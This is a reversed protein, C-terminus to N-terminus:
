AGSPEDRSETIRIKCIDDTVDAINKLTEVSTGTRLQVDFLLTVASNEVPYCLLATMRPCARLYEARYFFRNSSLLRRLRQCLKMLLLNTAHSSTTTAHGLSPLFTVM